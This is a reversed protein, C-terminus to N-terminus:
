FVFIMIPARIAEKIDEDTKSNSGLAVIDQTRIINFFVTAIIGGFLIIWEGFTNM